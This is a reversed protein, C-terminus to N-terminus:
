STSGEASSCRRLVTARKNAAGSLRVFPQITTTGAGVSVLAFTSRTEFFEQHDAFNAPGFVGEAPASGNVSWGLRIEAAADVGADATVEAKIFQASSVTVTRPATLALWGLAPTLAFSGIQCGAQAAPVAAAPQVSAITAAVMAAAGLAAASAAMRRSIRQM